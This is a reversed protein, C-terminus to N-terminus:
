SAGEFEEIAPKGGALDVSSTKAAAASRKTVASEM